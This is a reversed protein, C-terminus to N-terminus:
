AGSLAAIRARDRDAGSIQGLREPEGAIFSLATIAVASAAERQEQVTAKRTGSRPRVPM